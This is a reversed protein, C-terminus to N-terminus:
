RRRDRLYSVITPNIERIMDETEIKDIKDTEIL